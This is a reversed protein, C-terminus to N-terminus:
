MWDERMYLKMPFIDGSVDQNLDKKIHEMFSAYKVPIGTEKSVEKVLQDGKLVDEASTERVLHTNNILGTVTLNTTTEISRLHEIVGEVTSTDQRNANVVFFLDYQDKPLDRAFRAIVRAGVKDGGVDIVYDYSTDIMPSVVEASVAPLDLVTGELYSSIVRIGHEEFLSKKERSRFYVNVVDLDAIAVNGGTEEKLKMAYNVSFETKGSGYHGTIIRIRKDDRIMLKM